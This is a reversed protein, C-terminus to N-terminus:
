KNKQIQETLFEIVNELYSKLDHYEIDGPIWMAFKWYKWKDQGNIPPIILFQQEDEHGAIMIARELESVIDNLEEIEKWTNIANWEFNRYYDIEEVKQFSPEVSNSCTPFGNAISVLDIYDDPLKIGLRNETNEIALKTAPPNGIWNTNIQKDTYIEDGLVISKKFLIELTKKMRIPLLYQENEFTCM